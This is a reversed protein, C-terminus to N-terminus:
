SLWDGSIFGKHGGYQVFYWNTDTSYAYVTTGNPIEGIVSYSQSPGTRINLVGGNTSVTRYSGSYYKFGNYSSSYSYSYNSGFSVYDASAYGSSSGYTVYYWGNTGCGYVSLSSGNPMITIVGSSTDPSKRLNLGTAANVYGSGLYTLSLAGGETIGCVACKKPSSVTAATWNHGSASGETSGCRSCTKPSLCTANQWLHGLPAGESTGCVTCVAPKDCTAESYKHGTPTTSDEGCVTCKSPKDCSPSDYTHGLPTGETNGCLTCTKPKDCAAATWQHVLPEGQKM